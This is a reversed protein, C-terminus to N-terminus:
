DETQTRQKLMWREWERKKTRSLGTRVHCVAMASLLGAPGRSCPDARWDSFFPVLIFSLLFPARFPFRKEWLDCLYVFVLIQQVSPNIRNQPASNPIISVSVVCSSVWEFLVGPACDRHLSYYGSKSVGTRQSIVNKALEKHMQPLYGM